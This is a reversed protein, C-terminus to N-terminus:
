KADGMTDIQVTKTDNLVQEAFGSLDEVSQINLENFSSPAPCYVPMHRFKEALPKVITEQLFKDEQPANSFVVSQAPNKYFMLNTQYDQSNDLVMATDSINLLEPLIEM